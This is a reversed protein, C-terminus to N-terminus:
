AVGRVAALRRGSLDERGPPAQGARANKHASEGAVSRRRICRARQVALAVAGGMKGATKEL